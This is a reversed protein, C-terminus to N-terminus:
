FGQSFEFGFIFFAYETGSYVDIVVILKLM